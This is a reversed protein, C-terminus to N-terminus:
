GVLKAEQARVPPRSGRFHQGNGVVVSQRPGQGKRHFQGEVLQKGLIEPVHTANNLIHVPQRQNEQMEKWQGEM